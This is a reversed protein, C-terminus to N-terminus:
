GGLEFLSALATAALLLVAWRRLGRRYASLMIAGSLLGGFLGGVYHLGISAGTAVAAIAALDVDRRWDLDFRASVVHRAVLVLTGVSVIHGFYVRYTAFAEMAQPLSLVLLLLVTNFGAQEPM